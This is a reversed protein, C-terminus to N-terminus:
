PLPAVRKLVAKLAIPPLVATSTGLCVIKRHGWFRCQFTFDTVAPAEVDAESLAFRSGMRAGAMAQTGVSTIEGDEDYATYDNRGSVLGARDEELTWRMFTASKTSESVTTQEIFVSPTVTEWVGSLTRGRRDGAHGTVAVGLFVSMVSLSVALTRSGHM